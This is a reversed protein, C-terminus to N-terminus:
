KSGLRKLTQNARFLAVAGAGSVASGILLLMIEFINM